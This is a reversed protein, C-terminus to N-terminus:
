AYKSSRKKYTDTETKGGTLAAVKMTLRQIEARTQDIQYQHRRNLHAIEQADVPDIEIPGSPEEPQYIERRQEWPRGYQEFTHERYHGSMPFDFDDTILHQYHNHVDIGYQPHCDCFLHAHPITRGDKIFPLLGSGDCISYPCSRKAPKAKVLVNSWSTPKGKEDWEVVERQRLTETGDMNRTYNCNPYASCGIFEGHSGHKITLERGCKPCTRTGAM